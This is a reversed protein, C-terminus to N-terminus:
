CMSTVDWVLVYWLYFACEGPIGQWSVGCPPEADRLHLMYDYLVHETLPFLERGHTTCWGAFKGMSSLRKQITSTAKGALCSQISGILDNRSFFKHNASLAACIAFADINTVILNAREGYMDERKDKEERVTNKSVAFLFFPRHFEQTPQQTSYMTEVAPQQAPREFLPPDIRSFKPEPGIVLEVSSIDRKGFVQGLWSDKREWFFEPAAATLSM